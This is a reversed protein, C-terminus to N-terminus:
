LKKGWIKLKTDCSYTGPVLGGRLIMQHLLTEIFYLNDRVYQYTEIMYEEIEDPFAIGDADEETNPIAKDRLGLVLSVDDLLHSQEFLMKTKDISVSDENNEILFCSVLKLHDTTLTLTKEAM